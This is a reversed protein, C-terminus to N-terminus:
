LKHCFDPDDKSPTVFFMEAPCAKTCRPPRDCFNCLVSQPPVDRGVVFPRENRGAKDRTWNIKNSQRTAVLNPCDPRICELSGLCKVTQIKFSNRNNNIKAGIKAQTEIMRSWLFCDNRREMRTFFAGKFYKGKYPPLEFVRDGDYSHPLQHVRELCCKTKILIRRAAEVCKSTGKGQMM